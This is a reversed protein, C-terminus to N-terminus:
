PALTYGGGGAMGLRLESFPSHFILSFAGFRAQFRKLFALSWSCCPARVDPAALNNLPRGPAPAKEYADVDGNVIL